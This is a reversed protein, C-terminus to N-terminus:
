SYTGSVSTGSFIDLYIYPCGDQPTSRLQPVRSLTIVFTGLVFHAWARSLQKPSKAEVLPQGEVGLITHHFVRLDAREPPDNCFINWHRARIEDQEPLFLFNSIVERYKGMVGYSCLHPIIGFRGESAHYMEAENRASDIGGWSM